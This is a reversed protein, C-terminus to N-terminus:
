RRREQHPVMFQMARAHLWKGAAGSKSKTRFVDCCNKWVKKM